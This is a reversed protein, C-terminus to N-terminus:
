SARLIAKKQSQALVHLIVFFHSILHDRPIWLLKIELNPKAVRMGLVTVSLGKVRQEEGGIVGM